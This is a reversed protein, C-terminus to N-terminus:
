EELLQRHAEALERRAADGVTPYALNLSELTDIV